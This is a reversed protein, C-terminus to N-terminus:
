GLSGDPLGYRATAVRAFAEGRTAPVRVTDPTRVVAPAAPLPATDPLDPAAFERYAESIAGVQRFLHKLDDHADM